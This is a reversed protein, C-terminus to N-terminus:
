WAFALTAALVAGTVAWCVGIAPGSGQELRTAGSAWAFIFGCAMFLVMAPVWRLLLGSAGGVYASHADPGTARAPLSRGVDDASVAGTLHMDKTWGDARFRGNCSPAFGTQCATVEVTGEQAHGVSMWLAPAAVWAFFMLLCASALIGILSATLSRPRRVRAPAKARDRHRRETDGAREWVARIADMGETQYGIPERQAALQPVPDSETDAARRTRSM